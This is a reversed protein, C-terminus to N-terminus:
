ILLIVFCPQCHPNTKLLLQRHWHRTCWTSLPPVLCSPPESWPLIQIFFLLCVWIIILHQNSSVFPSIYSSYPCVSSTTCRAVLRAPSCAETRTRRCDFWRRPCAWTARCPPRRRSRPRGPAFRHDHGRRSEEIGLWDVQFKKTM